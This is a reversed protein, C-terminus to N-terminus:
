KRMLIPVKSLPPLVVTATVTVMLETEAMTVMMVEGLTAKMLIAAAPLAMM